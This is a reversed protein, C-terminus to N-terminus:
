QVPPPVGADVQVQPVCTSQGAGSVSLPAKGVSVTTNAMPDYAYVVSDEFAYFKAGFFALAQTQVTAPANVSYTKTVKATGPDIADLAHPSATADLFYLKGDGSSTMDGEGAVLSGSFPNGVVTFQGSVIDFRALGGGSGLVETGLLYLTTDTNTVGVMSLAFSSFAAQPKWTSLASCTADKTSTKYITGGAEIWATGKRDVTMHDPQTTCTLTGIKTFAFTPPWFSWLEAGVGTVYIM